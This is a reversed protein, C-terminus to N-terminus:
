GAGDLEVDDGVRGALGSRAEDGRELRLERVLRELLDAVRADLRHVVQLQGDVTGAAPRGDDDVREDLGLQPGRHLREAAARLDAPRLVSAPRRTSIRWSRTRLM